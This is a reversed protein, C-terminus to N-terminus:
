YEPSTPEKVYIYTVIAAFGMVAAMLLFPSSYSLQGYLIGGVMNGISGLVGGTSLLFTFTSTSGIAAMLASIRGRHGRPMYDIFLAQSAVSGVNGLITLMCYFFLVQSIGTSFTFGLVAFPTFSLSVLIMTRRSFRGALLALAVSSLIIFVTSVTSVLGWQGTTIHIVDEVAYTVMFVSVLSVAFQYVGGLILLVWLQRSMEKMTERMNRLTGAIVDSLRLRTRSDSRLTDEVYRNRIIGSATIVIILVVYAWRQALVIGYRDMLLGILYPSLLGFSIPVANWLAYSKARNEVTTSDALLASFAPNRLGTLIAEVSKAILLWQWNPAFIYIAGNLAIMFQLSYVMKKRSFVDSLYGGLLYPFLSVVSSVSYILAIDIPTGGLYLVYLGWFPLTMYTGINWVGSTLMLIGLNTKWISRPKEDL